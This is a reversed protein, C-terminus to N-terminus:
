IGPGRDKEYDERRKTDLWGMVNLEVLHDWQSPARAPPAADIYEGDCLMQWLEMHLREAMTLLTRVPIKGNELMSAVYNFDRFGLSRAFDHKDHGAHEISKQVAARVSLRSTDEHCGGSTLYVLSCRAGYAMRELDNLRTKGNRIRIALGKTVWPWEVRKSLAQWIDNVLRM